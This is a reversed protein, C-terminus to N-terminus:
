CKEGEKIILYGCFFLFRLNFSACDLRVTERPLKDCEM